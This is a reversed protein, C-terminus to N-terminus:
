ILFPVRDKGQSQTRNFNGKIFHHPTIGHKRGAAEAGFRIINGAYFIFVSVYQGAKIRFSFFYDTLICCIRHAPHHLSRNIDSRGGAHPVTETQSFHTSFCSCRLVIGIGPEDSICWLQQGAYPDTTIIIKDTQIRLNPSPPREARGM